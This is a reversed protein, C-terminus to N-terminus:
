VAIVRSTGRRISPCLPDGTGGEGPDNLGFFQFLQVINTVIKQKAAPTFDTLADYFFLSHFLPEPQSHEHGSGVHSHVPEIPFYKIEVNFETDPVFPLRFIERDGKGLCFVLAQNQEITLQTIATTGLRTIPKIDGGLKEKLLLDLEGRTPHGTIVNDHKLKELPERSVVYVFRNSIPDALTAFFKGNTVKIAPRVINRLIGTTDGSFDAGELNPIDEFPTWHRGNVIQSTDALTVSNVVSPIGSDTDIYIFAEEHERILTQSLKSALIQEFGPPTATGQPSIPRRSIFVQLEHGMVQGLVGAELFRSEQELTFILLGELSLVVNPNQSM